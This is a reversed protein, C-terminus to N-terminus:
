QVHHLIFNLIDEQAQRPLMSWAVEIVPLADSLLINEHTGNKTDPAVNCKGSGNALLSSVAHIIFGTRETKNSDHWKPPTETFNRTKDSRTDGWFPM